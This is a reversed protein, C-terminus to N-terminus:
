IINGRYTIDLHSANDQIDGCVPALVLNREM